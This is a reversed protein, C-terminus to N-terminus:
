TDVKDNNKTVTYISKVSHKSLDKTINKQPPLLKEKSKVSSFLKWQANISNNSVTYTSM